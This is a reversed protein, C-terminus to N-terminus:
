GRTAYRIDIEGRVRADLTLATALADLWAREADSNRVIAHAAAAYVEAGLAPPTAAAM